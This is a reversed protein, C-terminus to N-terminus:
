QRPDPLRTALLAVLIALFSHVGLVTAIADRMGRSDSLSLFLSGIAAVGLALSIQQATVLTGSGAGARVPPVQSLIVRFLTPAVLGSGVGAVAMAPALALPTLDPWVAMTTAALGILGLGQLVAGTV